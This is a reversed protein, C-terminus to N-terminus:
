GGIGTHYYTSAEEGGEVQTLLLDGVVQYDTHFLIDGQLYLRIM